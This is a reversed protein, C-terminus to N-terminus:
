SVRAYRVTTAWEGPNSRQSCHSRSWPQPPWYRQAPCSTQRDAKHDTVQTRLIEKHSTDTTVKRVNRLLKIFYEFDLKMIGTWCNKLRSALNKGRHLQGEQGEHPRVLRYSTKPPRVAQMKLVFALLHSIQPEWPMSSMPTAKQHQLATHVQLYIGVNRPFVSVRDAASTSNDHASLHASLCFSKCVPLPISLPACFNTMSV